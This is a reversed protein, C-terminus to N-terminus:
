LSRLGLLCVQEYNNYWYSPESNFVEDKLTTYLTSEWRGRLQPDLLDSIYSSRNRQGDDTELLRTWLRGDPASM